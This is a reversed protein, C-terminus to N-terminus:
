KSRPLDFTDIQPNSYPESVDWEETPSIRHAVSQEVLITYDNREPDIPVVGFQPDVEDEGLGYQSMVDQLTPTGHPAHITMMVKAM